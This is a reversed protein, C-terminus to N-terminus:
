RHNYYELQDNAILDLLECNDCEFFDPEALIEEKLFGCCDCIDAECKGLIANHRILYETELRDFELFSM